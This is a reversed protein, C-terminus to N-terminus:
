EVRRRLDETVSPRRSGSPFPYRHRGIESRSALIERSGRSTAVADKLGRDAKM